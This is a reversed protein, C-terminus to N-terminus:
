RQQQQMDIDIPRDSRRHRIARTRLWPIGSCPGSSTTPGLQMCDSSICASCSLCLTADAPISLTWSRSWCPAACGDSRWRIWTTSGSGLVCRGLACSISNPICGKDLSHRGTVYSGFTCAAMHCFLSGNTNSRYLLRILFHRPQPLVKLSMLNTIRCRSILSKQAM